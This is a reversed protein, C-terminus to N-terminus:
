CCEDYGDDGAVWLDEEPRGELESGQLLALEEPSWFIPLYERAPLSQFYGHRPPPALPSIPSSILLHCDTIAHHDLTVLPHLCVPQCLSDCAHM